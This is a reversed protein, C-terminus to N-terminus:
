RRRSASWCPTAFTSSRSPRRTAKPRRSSIKVGAGKAGAEVGQSMAGWFPNALTKMLVGYEADDAKAASIASFAMAVGLALTFRNIKSAFAKM